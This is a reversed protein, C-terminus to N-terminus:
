DLNRSGRELEWAQPPPLPRWNVNWILVGPADQSLTSHLVPEPFIINLQFNSVPTHRSFSHNAFDVGFADFARLYPRLNQFQHSLAYLLSPLPPVQQFFSWLETCWLLSQHSILFGRYLWSFLLTFLCCIYFPLFIKAWSGDSVSQYRSHM